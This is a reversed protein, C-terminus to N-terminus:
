LEIEEPSRKQDAKFVELFSNTLFNFGNPFLIKCTKLFAGEDSKADELPHEIQYIDGVIENRRLNVKCLGFADLGMKSREIATLEDEYETCM